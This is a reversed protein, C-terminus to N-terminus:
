VSLENVLKTKHTGFKSFLRLEVLNKLEIYFISNFTRLYKEKKLTFINSEM